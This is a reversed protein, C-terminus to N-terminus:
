EQPFHTNRYAVLYEYATKAEAQWRPVHADFSEQSYGEWAGGKVPNYTRLKEIAEDLSVEPLDHQKTTENWRSFASAVKHMAHKGPFPKLTDIGLVNEAHCKSCSMAVCTCDGVHDAKLEELYHKLLEDVRSDLKSHDTRGEEDNCWYDPDLEKRAETLAADIDLAKLSGMDKLRETIVFHASFIMDEYQEIKLRLRLLEIEQSDLEVITDLPNPTYTIKM